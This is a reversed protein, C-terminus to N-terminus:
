GGGQGEQPTARTPDDPDTNGIEDSREPSPTVPEDLAHPSRPPADAGPGVLEAMPEEDPVPSSLPEAPEPLEPASRVEFVQGPELVIPEVERALPKFIRRYLNGGLLGDPDYREKLGFFHGLIPDGLTARFTDPSILSDKALYFRGGAEVVVREIQRSMALLEARRKSRVPFDMALSYGDLAHSLWFADPRHRKMVVLWSEYRAGQQIELVRRFVRRAVDRPIFIQIQVLGHPLYIKKWGPVYDLLFNFPAHGQLHREQSAQRSAWAYRLANVLRMGPRNALPRLLRWLWRKPVGFITDPLAQKSPDLWTRGDPDQGPKTYRAAHLNGRGLAPGRGFADIWGVVYDWGADTYREFALFMADLDRLTEPQVELRGGHVKKLRLTISTFVGLAGFGGIAAHFLNPESERTVRRIQGDPTVLTFAVVHEGFPGHAVNNKGHVNAATCGGITTTMTGSVVPPWYGRPLVHQWLEGLTLGPQVTVTGSEADFDEISRMSRMDLTIQGDNLAADGYSRGQGWACVSARREKALGFAAAVDEASEPRVVTTLARTNMGWSERPELSEETSM